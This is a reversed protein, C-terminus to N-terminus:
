APSSSRRPSRCPECIQGRWGDLSTGDFITVYGDKDVTFQKGAVEFAVEKKSDKPKNGCSVALLALSM